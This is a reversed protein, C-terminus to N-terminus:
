EETAENTEVIEETREDTPPTTKKKAFLSSVKKETGLKIRKMNPIHVLVIVAFVVLSLIGATWQEMCFLYISIAGATAFGGFIIYDSLLIVAIVIPTMMLAYLPSMAYIVGVCTAHGKGGKFKNYFPFIHGLVASFGAVWYALTEDPYILKMVAIALVSKFVDHFFVLLGGKFGIQTVTNSTTLAGSGEKSLDVKKFKSVYLAMNSCGFLYGIVVALFYQM